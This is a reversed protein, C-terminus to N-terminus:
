DTNLDMKNLQDTIAAAAPPHYVGYYFSLNFSIHMPAPSHQVIFFPDSRLVPIAPPPVLQVLTERLAALLHLATNSHMHLDNGGLGSRLLPIDQPPTDKDPQYTIHTFSRISWCLPSPKAILICRKEAVLIRLAADWFERLFAFKADQHEEM